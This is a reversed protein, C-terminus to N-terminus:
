TLDVGSLAGIVAIADPNESTISLVFEDGDLATVIDLFACCHVEREALDAVKAALGAPFVMQAGSNLARSSSALRQLDAWELAQTEADRAGLSCAVPTPETSM